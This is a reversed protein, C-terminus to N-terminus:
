SLTIVTAKGRRAGGNRAMGPVAADIFTIYNIEGQKAEGPEAIGRRAGGPFFKNSFTDRKGQRAIGKWAVSRGASGQLPFIVIEQNTEM